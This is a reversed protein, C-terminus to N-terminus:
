QRGRSAPMSLPTGIPKRCISWVSTRDGSPGLNRGAFTRFTVRTYSTGGLVARCSEACSTPRIRPLCAMPPIARATRIAPANRSPDPQGLTSISDRRRRHARRLNRRWIRSCQRSGLHTPARSLIASPKLRFTMTARIPNTSRLGQRISGDSQSNISFTGSLSDLVGLGSKEYRAYFFQLAQPEFDSRLRGLGGWLDKYGRVRDLDSRQYWLTLNQDAALRGVLKTHAGYQTFGTDQQRSGYLNHILDDSLGFFRKFVHRSDVGGGARLDNHRRWSGGALWAVRKSGISFKADAGASADASAAFTQFEGHAGLSFNPSLTILQIAGGLADSGYQSSAPGLMAEIRQTQSPEAFALYQNPGSRFTSNNLRVGDILNLVQYGTLGRLFPSVQGYASQQAMVGTAGELANGITM